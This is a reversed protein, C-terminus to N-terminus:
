GEIKGLKQKLAQQLSNSLNSLLCLAGDSQEDGDMAMLPFDVVNSTAKQAEAMKRAKQTDILPMSTNAGLRGQIILATLEALAFRNLERLGEHTQVFQQGTQALRSQWRFQVSPDLHDAFVAEYISVAGRFLEQVDPLVIGLETARTM